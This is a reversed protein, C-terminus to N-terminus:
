NGSWDPYSIVTWLRNRSLDAMYVWSAKGKSESRVFLREGSGYKPIENKFYPKGWNLFTMQYQDTLSDFHNRRVWDMLTLSDMEFLTGTLFEGNDFAELVTYKAPFTIGSVREYYAKEFGEGQWFCSSFLFAVIIFVFYRMFVMLIVFVRWGTLVGDGVKITDFIGAQLLLAYKEYVNKKGKPFFQDHVATADSALPALGMGCLGNFFDCWNFFRGISFCGM